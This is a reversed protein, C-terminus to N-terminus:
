GISELPSEGLVGREIDGACEVTGVDRQPVGDDAFVAEETTEKFFSAAAGNLAGGGIVEAVPGRGCRMAVVFVGGEFLEVSVGGHGHGAGFM